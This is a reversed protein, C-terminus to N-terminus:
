MKLSLQFKSSFILTKVYSYIHIYHLTALNETFKYEQYEVANMSVYIVTVPKQVM